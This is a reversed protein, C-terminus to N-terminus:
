SNLARGANCGSTGTTAARPKRTGKHARGAQHAFHSLAHGLNALVQRWQELHRKGAPTLSYIRRAPGGNRTAWRSIVYGNKELGRLTRYLAAHEIQADTLAYESLHAALDYGCSHGRENLMLLAVPEVFRYVNGMACTCPRSGGHRPCTRPRMLTGRHSMM